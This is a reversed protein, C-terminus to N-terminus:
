IEFIEETILRLFLVILFISIFSLVWGPFNIHIKSQIFNSLTRELLLLGLVIVLNSIWYNKNKIRQWIRM